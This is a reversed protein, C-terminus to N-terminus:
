IQAIRTVPASLNGVINCIRNPSVYLALPSSSLCHIVYCQARKGFRQQRPFAILIVYESHTDTTKDRM